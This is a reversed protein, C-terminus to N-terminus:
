SKTPVHCEPNTAHRRVCQHPNLLCLPPSLSTWVQIGIVSRRPDLRPPVGFTTPSSFRLVDLGLLGTEIEDLGPPVPRRTRAEHRGSSRRTMARCEQATGLSGGRRMPRNPPVNSGGCTPWRTVATLTRWASASSTISNTTAWRGQCFSPPRIIVLEASRNAITAAATSPTSPMSALSRSIARPPTLKM